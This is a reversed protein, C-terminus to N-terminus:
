KERGVEVRRQQRAIFAAIEDAFANAPPPTSNALVVVSYDPEWLMAVNARGGGRHDRVEVGNVTRARMGYTWFAAGRGDVDIRPAIVLETLEPGLLRGTRFGRLFRFMDAATSHGGGFGTPQGSKLAHDPVFPDLGLPDEDSQEYFTSVAPAMGAATDMYTDKMGLPAFLRRRLSEVYSAGDLRELIAGLM